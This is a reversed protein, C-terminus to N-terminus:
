SRVIETVRVGFREDVAVIEGRAIVKGGVLVEVPTDVPRDLEIVSGTGLELLQAISLRCCGLRATLDLPLGRVVDLNGERADATM